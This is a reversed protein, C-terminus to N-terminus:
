VFRGPGLLLNANTTCPAPEFRVIIIHFGSLAVPNGAWAAVTLIPQVYAIKGNIDVLIDPFFVPGFDPPSGAM